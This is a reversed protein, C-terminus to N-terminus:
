NGVEFAGIAMSPVSFLSDVFIACTTAIEDLDDM